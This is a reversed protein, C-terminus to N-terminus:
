KGFSEEKDKITLLITMNPDNIKLPNLDTGLLTLRLENYTGDILKNWMFNPPRDNIQEGVKVNPNLSYIISSPQSYPNNINSLSFLVNNNPQVQPALNSLYSLTGVSSKSVYNNLASASTPTYANSTNANSSFGASYGVIINFNAPFSVVSNQTTNPWGPFGSPVSYGSPLTTPILYTNLQIAYRNPNVLIEFPYVYNGSTSNIWYTANSICNYQILNNLQSIEYLGDPVTITYITTTGVANTWTYTFYNNQYISAINFWSYYMSISSVAIYKDTLNVSNPFKFVLKNNQGDNIINNQNLVLVFM